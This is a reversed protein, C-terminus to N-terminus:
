RPFERVRLDEPWESPDAGARDECHLIPVTGGSSPLMRWATAEAEAVEAINSGLQKVFVPVGAAKCQRVIDRAWEINFPRAPMGPQDSEGGVIVWGIRRPPMEGGKSDWRALDNRQELRLDIPGLMPEISLFRVAAPVALLKPIDRDAEEQNVVTAGIWVNPWPTPNWLKEVLFANGIRKTLLMWTLSPTKRILELLDWRWTPHLENDLVDCLSGCFVRWPQGTERAKREWALPKQWNSASTIRRAQGAGWTVGLARAPTSVSAYCHECGPSVKTCGLWPNFTSHAWAINTTEAM